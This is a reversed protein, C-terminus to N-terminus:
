KNLDNMDNAINPEYGAIIAARSLLHASVPATIMFFIIALVSRVIVAMDFCILAVAFLCLGSGITGAKSASHMRSYLDPLRLIGIVALLSFVGGLLLVGGAVYSLVEVIM